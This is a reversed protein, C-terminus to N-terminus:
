SVEIVAQLGLKDALQRLDKEVPETALVDYPARVSLVLRAEEVSLRSNALVKASLGSFRRCLRIALGWAEAERVLEATLFRTVIEPLRRNANTLGCVALMARTQPDAGIWRKRMTWDTIGEARLNPEIQNAALAIMTAALRLSEQGACGEPNAASTWGAVMASSAAPSGYGETFASIGALLPDQKQIASPLGAHLLGERLGWSSFVIRDPNLENVLIALMAATDPLSAARSVSLGPAGSEVKGRILSRCISLAKDRSLEFGHPDDFPWACHNMAYRALARHSGGVLYLANTQRITWESARLSRSVLRKFKATGAARLAPLGLSGFPMSVGHACRQGDIEILELSGGGLDAVVGKAGPFAGIVGMASHVAEEEGTLLRPKLGTARVAELFQEGNSADRVAATAVTQVARVHRLKLLMAFRRLAALAAIMSKESLAGTENVGRGLRATVKENHLVEPARPPGGYIVLRVTNSGIDIVASPECHPKSTM